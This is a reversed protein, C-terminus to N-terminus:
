NDVNIKFMAKLKSLFLSINNLDISNDINVEVWLDHHLTIM